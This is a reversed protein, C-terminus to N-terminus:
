LGRSVIPGAPTRTTTSPRSRAMAACHAHVSPREKEIRWSEGRLPVERQGGVWGLASRKWESIRNSSTDKVKLDLSISLVKDTTMLAVEASTM